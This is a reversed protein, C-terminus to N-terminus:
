KLTKLSIYNIHIVYSSFFTLSIIGWLCKQGHTKFFFSSGCKDRGHQLSEFVLINCVLGIVSGTGHYLSWRIGRGPPPRITVAASGPQHALPLDSNIRNSGPTKRHSHLNHIAIERAPNIAGNSPCASAMPAPDCWAEQAAQECGNKKESIPSRDIGSPRNPATVPSCLWYIFSNSSIRLDDDFVRFSTMTLGAPVSSLGTYLVTTIRVYAQVMKAYSRIYARPVLRPAM